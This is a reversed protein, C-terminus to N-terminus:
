PAKQKARAKPKDGTKPKDDTKAAASGRAKPTKAPKTTKAGGGGGGSRRAPAVAGGFAGLGARAKEGEARGAAVDERAEPDIAAAHLTDRVRELTTEGLDRGEGTLLGRAADMLDDVATRENETAARLAAADGKGALLDD